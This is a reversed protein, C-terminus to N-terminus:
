MVHSTLSLIVTLDSQNGETKTCQKLFSLNFFLILHRQIYVLHLILLSIRLSLFHAQFINFIYSFDADVWPHLKNRAQNFSQCWHRYAQPKGNGWYAPIIVYHDWIPKLKVDCFRASILTLSLNWFLAFTVSGRHKRKAAYNMKTNKSHAPCPRSRDPHPTPADCCSDLGKLRGSGVGLCHSFQLTPGLPHQLASFWVLSAYEM